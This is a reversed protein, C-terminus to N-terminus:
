GVQVQVRHWGEAGSPFTSGQDDRQLQGKGDRARVVLTYAGAQHPTWTSTWQTWSLGSLQIELRAEAWTRGGDSSWEVAKIGRTGAFAIGALEVPGRALLSGDAPADIRSVTKIIANHDWGQEEWYGGSEQGALSISDLWKPARMGYHGPIVMRAPFGHATPLAQGDLQYAVMIDPDSIAQALDLSETFGDRAQFSIARADPAPHARDILDRLPVGTFRGTSILNGGVPNSVCAMTIISTRAPIAGLQEYTLDYPAAALGGVKLRWTGQDVVPDQFNKSVQYFHDIPTLAPVPGSSREPPSILIQLWGPLKVLGLAVLGATGAWGLLRRRGAADATGGPPTFTSELLAGYTAALVAWVLPTTPGERLGLWGEGSAPLLILTTVLWVLGGAAWGAGPLRREHTIQAAAGLGALALALFLLLGAEELVKGAHQLRDILFGFVPGPMAGLVPGQLVDPLPRLAGLAGAIEMASLLVLGAWFGAILGRRGKEM